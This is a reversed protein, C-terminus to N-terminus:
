TVTESLAKPLSLDIKSPSGVRALCHAFLPLSQEVETRMRKRPYTRIRSGTHVSVRVSAIALHVRMRDISGAPRAVDRIGLCLLINFWSREDFVSDM